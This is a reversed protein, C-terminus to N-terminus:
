ALEALEIGAENTDLWVALAGSPMALGLQLLVPLRMKLLALNHRHQEAQVQNLGGHVFQDHLSDLRDLTDRWEAELADWEPGHDGPVATGFHASHSALAALQGRISRLRVDIKRTLATKEAM